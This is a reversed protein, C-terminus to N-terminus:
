KALLQSGTDFMAQGDPCPLWGGANPRPPECGVVSLLMRAMEVAVVQRRGSLGM